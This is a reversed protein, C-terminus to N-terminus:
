REAEVKLMAQLSEIRVIGAHALLVDPFQSNHPANKLYLRLDAKGTIGILNEPKDDIMVDAHISQVIGKKGSSAIVVTPHYYGERTLWAETQAKVFNGSRNTVFYVEDGQEELEQLSQLASATGPLKGLMLWFTGGEAVEKWAAAIAEPTAIANPWDWQSPWDSGRGSIDAGLLDAFAVNFEALVGDIDIVFRKTM